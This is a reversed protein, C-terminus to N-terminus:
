EEPEELIRIIGENILKDITVKGMISIMGDSYYIEYNTRWNFLPQESWTGARIERYIIGIRGNDNILTGIKYGEETKKEDAM